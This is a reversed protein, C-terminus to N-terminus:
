SRLRCSRLSRSWRGKYRSSIRRCSHRTKEKAAEIPHEESRYGSNIIIPFGVKNRLLQLKDILEHSINNEGTHKCAFEEEKFNLWSM